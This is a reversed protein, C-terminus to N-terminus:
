GRPDELLMYLVNDTFAPDSTLGVHDSFLFMVNSWEIPSQLRPTWEHGVREDMLASSRLVTGDGPDRELTSLAGTSTDVELISDTDVSDGAVLFLELSEPPKAPADLALHLGRARRLAKDVHDTAIARREAPDDVGPLLWELVEDQEPNLLGWGNEDWFEVHDFNHVRKGDADVLAGHRPRPMLQYISVMTGLVAAEYKPFLSSFVIGQVLQKIAEASGANPTGIMILREVYQAGEWTVPGPTGDDALDAAGYRLFYRTILGGMSHAVIDFKVPEDTGYRKLREREVYAKKELVFNHLLRANEINDRRWDYDFQFCTFHDDGYDIAGALGLQEDRYGGVGLSGLIKVYAQLEFPLGLLKVRLRDLVGDSVVSDHIDSLPVGKQMPLSALRAGKPTSPDAASGGFAGWVITNRDSDVLRSGLIGPIVIVPNRFQDHHMAVQNYIKGLDAVPVPQACGILALALAAMACYVGIRM